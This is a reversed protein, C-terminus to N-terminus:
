ILSVEEDHIKNLEITVMNKNEDNWNSLCARADAYETFIGKIRSPDDIFQSYVVYVVTM